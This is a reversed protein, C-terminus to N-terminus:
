SSRIMSSDQQAPPACVEPQLAIRATQLVLYVSLDYGILIIVILVSRGQVPQVADMVQYGIETM